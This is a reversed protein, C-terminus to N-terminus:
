LAMRISIEQLKQSVDYAMVGYWSVTRSGHQLRYEDLIVLRDGSPYPLAKLLVTNVISFITTNAGIGPALTGLAVISFGPTKLLGRIGGRVDRMVLEMEQRMGLPGRLRM